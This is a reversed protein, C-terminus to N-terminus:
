EAKTVKVKVKTEEVQIINNPLTVVLPVEHEGEDLNLVDISALLNAVTVKNLDEIRGKLTIALPYTVEYVLTNDDKKGNITLNDQEINFTQQALPIIEVSVIVERTSSVLKIGEPLQVLIPANISSTANDLNIPETKIENTKTMIDAEGTILVKDPKATSLGEVYDTAPKGETIPIVPVRKGIVIKIDVSLQKSLEPLEEGNKDYVKCEKRIDFSRALDTVDVYAKVSGVTKLVTDVAKLSVTDPQATKSIIEYGEPLNGYTEIQVVFPNEEIKGLDLKVTQPKLGINKVDIKERGIYVPPELEIVKDNVSKVKSLDLIVEFDTNKLNNLVDGRDRVSVVAYKQYSSNNLVLGYSKLSEQNIVTIPVTYYETKVPNISFWLFVAFVISFIKLTLDKKLFEKM